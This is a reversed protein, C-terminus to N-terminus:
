SAMASVGRLPAFRKSPGTPQPPYGDYTQAASLRPACADRPALTPPTGNLPWKIALQPDDWALSRKYEPNWYETAKYVIEATESLVLFGHGYGPPIWIQRQSAADLRCGYWCGFYTSSRRLDVAVDFVEGSVVRVLRGQPKVLQYHLGRLVHRTSHSHNDQVFAADIGTAAAFHQQNWSEFAFGRADGFVAPEILLVGPLPTRTIQLKLEQLHAQGLLVRLLYQGSRYKALPSGL